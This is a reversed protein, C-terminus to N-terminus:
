MGAATRNVAARDDAASAKAPKEADIKQAVARSVAFAAVATATAQDVRLKAGRLIMAQLNLPLKQVAKQAALDPSGTNEKGLAICAAKYADNYAFKVHTSQWGAPAAQLAATAAKLAAEEAAPSHAPKEVTRGKAGAVADAALQAARYSRAVPDAGSDDAKVTADYIAQYADAMLEPAHKCRAAFTPASNSLMAVAALLGAASLMKFSRCM